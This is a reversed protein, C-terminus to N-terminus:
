SSAVAKNKAKELESQELSEPQAFQNLWRILDTRLIGHARVHDAIRGLPIGGEYYLGMADHVPLSGLLWAITPNAKNNHAPEALLAARVTEASARNNMGACFAGLYAGIVGLPDQNKRTFSDGYAFPNQEFARKPRLM